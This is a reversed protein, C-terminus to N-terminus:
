DHLELYRFVLLWRCNELSTGDQATCFPVKFFVISPTFPGSIWFSQSFTPYITGEKLPAWRLLPPESDECKGLQSTPSIAFWGCQQLKTIHEDHVFCSWNLNVHFKYWSGTRPKCLMFWFLRIASKSAIQLIANRCNKVASELKSSGMCRLGLLFFHAFVMSIVSSGVCALGVGPLLDTRCPLM